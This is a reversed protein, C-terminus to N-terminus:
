SPNQWQRTKEPIKNVVHRIEKVLENVVEKTHKKIKVLTDFLKPSNAFYINENTCEKWGLWGHKGDEDPGHWINKEEPGYNLIKRELLHRYLDLYKKHNEYENKIEIRNRINDKKCLVFGYYLHSITPTTDYTIRCAVEHRSDDLSTDPIRFTLGPSGGYGWKIYEKLREDEIVEPELGNSKYLQFESKKYEVGLQEKLEKWFEYELSTQLSSRNDIIKQVMEVSDEDIKGEIAKKDCWTKMENTIKKVIELNDGQSLLKHVLCQEKNGSSYRDLHQLFQIRFSNANGPERRMEEIMWAIDSWPMELVPVVSDDNKIEPLYGGPTLFVVVAKEDESYKKDLFPLYLGSPQYLGIQGPQQGAWVKVEIRVILKLSEFHASVGVYSTKDRKETEVVAGFKDCDDNTKEAEAVIRDRIWTVFRQRFEKNAEDRLLWDLVNLYILEPYTTSEIKFFDFPPEYDALEKYHPSSRLKDIAQQLDSM